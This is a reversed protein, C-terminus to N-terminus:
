KRKIKSMLKAVILAGIGFVQISAAQGAQPLQNQNHSPRNNNTITDKNGENIETEDSGENIETEDSGENTETEDSGENTETEDSGENIEADDNGENTETEDSGENTETEDSGENTETEDSGENTETENNGENTETENNGENNDGAPADDEVRLILADFAAQLAILAAEIEGLAAENLNFLNISLSHHELVSIAHEKADVFANWSAETFNTAILEGNEILEFKTEIMGKLENLASGLTPIELEPLPFGIEVDLEPTEPLAILENRELWEQYENPLTEAFHNIYNFGARREFSLNHFSAVLDFQGNRDTTLEGNEDRYLNRLTGARVASAETGSSTANASIFGSRYGLWTGNQAEFDVISINQHPSVTTAFPGTRDYFLPEFNEFDIFRPWLPRAGEEPVLNRGLRADLGTAHNLRFGDIRIYDFFYVAAHIAEIIEETPDEISMLFRLIDISENGNISAPEFERQQAPQGPLAPTAGPQLTFNEVGSQYVAMPWATLREIGDEFGASRVQTNLIWEMGKDFATTAAIARDTGITTTFLGENRIDMMLRLINSIANDSISLARHYSGGSIQYPWGGIVDQTRIITDFGRLGSELFREIGTAEYMRLLFRTENTTIGRGFYSDENNFGLAIMQVTEPAMGGIDPQHPLANVQGIGRPWGGNARQMYVFNTAIALSNPSGYWAEARNNIDNYLINGQQIDTGTVIILTSSREDWGINGIELRQSIEALPVFIADGGHEVTNAILASGYYSSTHTSVILLTDELNWTTGPLAAQAAALPVWLVDNLIFPIALSTDIDRLEGNFRFLHNGETFTIRSFDHAWEVRENLNNPFQNPASTMNGDYFLPINPLVLPENVTISVPIALSNGDGSAVVVLNETHLGSDLGLVPRVGIIISENPELIEPMATTIEFITSLDASIFAAESGVNTIEVYQTELNEAIYGYPLNPFDFEFNVPYDLWAGSFEGEFIRVAQLGVRGIPDNANNGGWAFPSTILYGEGAAFEIVVTGPNQPTGVVPFTVSQEGFNLTMQSRLTPAVALVDLEVRLPGKLSHSAGLLRGAGNPDIFNYPATGNSRFGNNANTGIGILLEFDQERAFPSVSRISEHRESIPRTPISGIAGAGTQTGDTPLMSFDFIYAPEGWNANMEQFLVNFNIYFILEDMEDATITVVGAHLGAPLQLKPVIQFEIMQGSYLTEVGATGKLNFAAEGTTLNVTINEAPANGISEITISLPAFDATTYNHAVEGFSHTAGIGIGSIQIEPLAKPTGTVIASFVSPTTGDHGRVQFEYTAGNTLSSVVHNTSSSTIYWETWAEEREPRYRVEHHTANAVPMWTLRVEGDLGNVTELNTPYHNPNMPEAPEGYLSWSVVSSSNNRMNLGFDIITTGMPVPTSNERILEGTVDYLRTTLTTEIIEASLRFASHGAEEAIANTMNWGTPATTATENPMGGRIVDTGLANSALNVRDSNISNAAHRTSVSILNDNSLTLFANIVRDNATSVISEISYFFAVSTTGPLFEHVNPNSMNVDATGTINTTANAILVKRQNQDETGERGEKNAEEIEETEEQNVEEIEETEEQNVKEIEETEEQNVEEMGTEYNTTELYPLEEMLPMEVTVEEINLETKGENASVVMLGSSVNGFIMAASLVGALVCNVKKSRGRRKM